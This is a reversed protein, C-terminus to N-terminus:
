QSRRWCSMFDNDEYELCRRNRIQQVRRDVEFEALLKEESDEYILQISGTFIGEDENLLIGPENEDSEMNSLMEIEKLDWSLNIHYGENNDYCYYEWVEDDWELEFQQYKAWTLSEENDDFELTIENEDEDFDIIYKDPYFIEQNQDWTYIGRWTSAQNFYSSIEGYIRDICAQSRIENRQDMSFMMNISAAIVGMILIVVILEILTFWTRNMKSKKM